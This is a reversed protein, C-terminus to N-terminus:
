LRGRIGLTMRREYINQSITNGSWQSYNNEYEETMNSGSAYISINENIDYSASLDIYTTAETWIPLTGIGFVNSNEALRESRYNAAIRFQFGSKEYWLVANGSEKSNDVIPLTKGTFDENGSESPAYTYNLQAGFGSLFGPLFDFGQQYSFEVGSITGGNGNVEGTVVVERRVVGDGDPLGMMQSGTEIFSDIEMSFVAVSVLGSPAFYWEAGIDMNTSRWPDLQPNGNLAGTVAVQLDPSVGLEDARDGARSRGVSLGRGLRGLDLRTMTKGYAARVIFEDSLDFAINAAPLFDSYDRETRIDGDDGDATCLVCPSAGLENQLIDLNTRIYQFGVNARYDDGNFNAKFYATQTEETVQYSDKPSSLKKNNPYIANQFAWPDDMVKPDIFYFSGSSAPGFDSTQTIWESPLDTFYQTSGLTLDGNAVSLEGDGNTDGLAGGSDKWMVDKTIDGTTMPAVMIWTDREVDRRGWRVGFDVSSLHDGELSYNGDFRLVDLTADEEFNNESYTSILNYRSLDSGFAEGNVSPFSLSPHAGTIDYKVQPRDPGYGRPNVPEAGSGDNRNLGHQAGSTLYGQAVNETHTREAEGHLYRVSGSFDGGNDFALGLNINLSNRDNTQSESYANVRPADLMVVDSTYLSGGFDNPGRDVPNQPKIWGYDSWANDAVLGQSRDADEMETYFVDATLELSETLTAQFSSSLGLRERESFRNMIGYDVFGFYSDNTDGDGNVDTASSACPWQCGDGEGYALAWGEHPAGYRYNALNNKDYSVSFLAGIEDGNYGVFGTYKGDNEESFSGTTAEASGAVTFGESLDFPRRTQLNVTGSIGGALIDSTPSKLVDMGSVLSSPIDTFDPQTTTISGASLFQEGNLLTGVQPMGRVNITAGEGASRRIQIGPVRQLSDAITIDPLKGIDEATISDSVGNAFRKTNLSKETSARIGRVEIVELSENKTGQKEEAIAGFSLLSAAISLSLASKKFSVGVSLATKTNTNM